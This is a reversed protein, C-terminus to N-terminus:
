GEHNIFVCCILLFPVSPCSRVLSIALSPSPQVWPALALNSGGFEAAATHRLKHIYMTESWILSIIHWRFNCSGLKKHSGSGIRSKAAGPHWVSWILSLVFMECL